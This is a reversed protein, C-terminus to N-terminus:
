FNIYPKITERLENKREKEKQKNYAKLNAIVEDTKPEFNDYMWAKLSPYDVHRGCGDLKRLYAIWEEFDFKSLDHEFFLFVDNM